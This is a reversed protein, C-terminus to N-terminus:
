DDEFVSVFMDLHDDAAERVQASLAGSGDPKVEDLTRQIAKTRSEAHDITEQAQYLKKKVAALVQAYKGFEDKVGGLVEWVESSRQQIALTRFGMQLANLLAAM